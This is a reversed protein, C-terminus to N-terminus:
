LLSPQQSPDSVVIIGVLLDLDREVSKSNVLLERVESPARKKRGSFYAIQARRVELAKDRIAELEQIYERVVDNLEARDADSPEIM